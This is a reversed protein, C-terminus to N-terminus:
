MASCLARCSSLPLIIPVCRAYVNSRISELELVTWMIESEDVADEGALSRWERCEFFLM